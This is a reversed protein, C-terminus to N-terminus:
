TTEILSIANNPCGALASYAAERIKEDELRRKSVLLRGGHINRFTPLLIECKMCGECKEFDVSLEYM